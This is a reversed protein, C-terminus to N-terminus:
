HAPAVRDELRYGRAELEQRLQFTRGCIKFKALSAQHDADESVPTKGKAILSAGRGGMSQLCARAVASMKVNLIKIRERPVPSVFESSGEKTVGEVFAMIAKKPASNNWSPLPDDAARTHSIAHFLAIAVAMILAPFKRTNMEIM